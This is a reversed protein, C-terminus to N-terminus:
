RSAGASRRVNATGPRRMDLRRDCQVQLALAQSETLLEPHLRQPPTSHSEGQQPPRGFERLGTLGELHDPCAWVVWWRNARPSRWRGTWMPTEACHNAQLHHDHVDALLPRGRLHVRPVPRRTRADPGHASPLRARRGLGPVLRLTPGAVEEAAQDGRALPMGSRHRGRSHRMRGGIPVPGIPVRKCLPGAVPPPKRAAWGGPPLLPDPRVAEGRHGACPRPGVHPPVM